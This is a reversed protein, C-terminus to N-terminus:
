TLEINAIVRRPSHKTDAFRAVDDVIAREGEPSNFFKTRLDKENHFCCLAFGNWDPGHFCHQVSLQYYHTMAEHVELALAAHKDRWWADAAPAGLSPNAKLTFIGVTGPINEEDLALFPVNRITRACVLWAGVDATDVFRKTEDTATVVLAAFPLHGTEQSHATLLTGSFQEAAQRGAAKERHAGVAFLSNM